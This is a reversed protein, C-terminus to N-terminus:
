ASSRWPTSARGDLALTQKRLALTQKRLALTQKRAPALLPVDSVVGWFRVGGVGPPYIQTRVPGGPM